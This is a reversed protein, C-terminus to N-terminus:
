YLENYTKDLNCAVIAGGTFPFINLPRHRQEPTTTVVNKLTAIEPYQANPFGIAFVTRALKIPSSLYKNGM